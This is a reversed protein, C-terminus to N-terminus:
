SSGLFIESSSWFHKRIFFRTNYTPKEAPGITFWNKIRFQLGMYNHKFYFLSFLTVSFCKILLKCITKQTAPRSLRRIGRSWHPLPLNKDEGTKVCDHM